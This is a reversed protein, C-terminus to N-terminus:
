LFAARRTTDSTKLQPRCNIRVSPPLLHGWILDVLPDLIVLRLLRTSCWDGSRIADGDFIPFIAMSDRYLESFFVESLEAVEAFFVSGIHISRNIEDDM